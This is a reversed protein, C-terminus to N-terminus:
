ATSTKNPSTQDEYNNPAITLTEVIVKFFLSAITLLTKIDNAPSLMKKLSDVM